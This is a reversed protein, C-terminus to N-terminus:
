GREETADHRLLQQELKHVEQAFKKRNGVLRVAKEALMEPSVDPSTELATTLAIWQPLTLRVQQEEM